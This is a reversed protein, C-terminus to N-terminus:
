FGDEADWEEQNKKGEKRKEEQRERNLKWQCISTLSLVAPHKLKM